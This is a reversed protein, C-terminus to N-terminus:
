ILSRIGKQKDYLVIGRERAEAVVSNLWETSYYEFEEPTLILIDFPYRLGKLARRIKLYEKIKSQVNKKIIMIDIDSDIRPSGYVYSGFLIIKEPSSINIVRVVMETLINEPIKQVM